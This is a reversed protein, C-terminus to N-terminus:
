PRAHGCWSIAMVSSESYRIPVAVAGIRECALYAAILQHNRFHLAVHDRQGIGLPQLGGAILRAEAAVQGYTYKSGRFIVATRQEFEPRVRHHSEIWSSIGHTEEIFCNRSSPACNPACIPASM